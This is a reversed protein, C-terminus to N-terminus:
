QVEPTGPLEPSATWERKCQPCAMPVSDAHELCCAPCGHLPVPWLSRVAKGKEGDTFLSRFAPERIAKAFVARLLEELEILRDNAEKELADGAARTGHKKPDYLRGGHAIRSRMKYVHNAWAEDLTLGVTAALLPVRRRFQLLVDGSGVCVLRELASVTTPLRVLFNYVYRCSTFHWLADSLRSGDLSLMSYADMLSRLHSADDATLWRRTQGDACYAKDVDTRTSAPYCDLLRGDRALQLQAAFGFATQTPRVIHSMSVAVGLLDRPDWTTDDGKGHEYTFAYLAGLPPGIWQYRQCRCAKLVADEWEDPLPEVALRDGLVVRSAIPPREHRVDDDELDLVDDTSLVVDIIRRENDARFVLGTM